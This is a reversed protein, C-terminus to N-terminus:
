SIMINELHRDSVKRILVQVKKRQRWIAKFNILIYIIGRASTVFRYKKRNRKLSQAFNNIMLRSGYNFLNANDYNNMLVLLRNRLFYYISSSSGALHSGGELHYVKSEPVFVIKYGRLRIKWCIDVDDYWFFFRPDFLGAEKLANRSAIMACGSAFFIETIKDFQGRDIEQNGRLHPGGYSDIFGGASNIMKRDKMFLVKSQAAGITSDSELVKVLENICKRDVEVDNDLFLLYEGRAARIGVNRGEAIGLRKLNRIVRLRSNSGYLSDILELSGDTSADDIVIVEFNSYGLNLVSKLWKKLYEKGNYNQIIVSVLRPESVRAIM